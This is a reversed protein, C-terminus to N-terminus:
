SMLEKPAAKRRRRPRRRKAAPQGNGNSTSAASGSSRQGEPRRYGSGNGNAANSNSPKPQPRPARQNGSLNTPPPPPLPSAYPYNAAVPVHLQILREIDRLYEREETDCFSWAFGSAGARATRGIRHVYTEPENPLDYNIVHTISEVDIGRAAIDTAVLVRTSGSKFNALARERATQSKNGHIAEAMISARALQKVVKNAGHKTRTFVLVRKVTKDRLLHELLDPKDKKEVFFISQQIMEVTSAVPTVAVSVPNILINRALDQIEPPMTASFLLTQRKRPVANIIRRVDHIFGMDLMRDAEDLVLVEIRDLKVYGQGMLDLLRGPTAVLIDVGRKVADIQPNQGVGGFIVTQKLGTNRGYARFSEGIQTALERTPALVLVRIYREQRPAANLRQLIPLAFAATKGTGTQACGLLDSGALVHPIAQAQIPTPETYGEAHVARLLPEILKLDEFRM